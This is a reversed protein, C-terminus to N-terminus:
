LEVIQVNDFAKVRVKKYVSLIDELKIDASIIKHEKRKAFEIARKYNTWHWGQGCEIEQNRELQCSDGEGVKYQYEGSYFDKLEPTVAKYFKGIGNQMVVDIMLLVNLPTFTENSDDPIIMFGGITVYDNIVSNDGVSVHNKITVVSGILVNEGLLNYHGIRAKYRIETNKYITSYSDIKVNDSIKVRSNIEVCSDIETGHGIFTHSGIRVDDGIKTDHSINVFNYIITGYGVRSNKGIAVDEGVKSCSGIEAKDYIRSFEGITVNSGIKAYDYIEASGAIKIHREKLLKKFDKDTSDVLGWDLGFKLYLKM